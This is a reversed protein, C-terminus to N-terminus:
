ILLGYPSPNSVRAGVSVKSGSRRAEAAAQDGAWKEQKRQLEKLPEGGAQMVRAMEEKTMEHMPGKNEMKGGGRRSHAGDAKAYPARASKAEAAAAAAKADLSSGIGAM